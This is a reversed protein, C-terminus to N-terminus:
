DLRYQTMGSNDIGTRVVFGQRCLHDLYASCKHWDIHCLRSLKMGDINDRMDGIAELMAIKEILVRDSETM